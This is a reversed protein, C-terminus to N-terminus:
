AVSAAFPASMIMVVETSTVTIVYVCLKRALWKGIDTLGESGAFAPRRNAHVISELNVSILM